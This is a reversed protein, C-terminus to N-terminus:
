AVKRATIIRPTVYRYGDFTSESGLYDTGLLYDMEEDRIRMSTDSTHMDVERHNSAVTDSLM